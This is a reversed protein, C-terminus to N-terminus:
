KANQAKEKQYTALTANIEASGNNHKAAIEQWKIAEDLDGMVYYVRALTDLTAADKNGNLESARTAAKLALQMDTESGKGTRATNWAIQNLLQANEWASEIVAGRVESAQEVRGARELITMRYLATNTSKGAAEEMQDLVTLAGDYDKKQMSANLRSMWQKMVEQQKMEAVAADRNWTGAVIKALPEDIRAPHGIWEVIGDRGVVFACPIGNQGAARMYNTNTWDGSDLALRYKIVENWTGGTPANKSLFGNVTAEDERTVGIFAVKDKYKTQLESIHPMGVRCPGCWTAWFEVVHVKDRLPATVPDGKIWKAVKLGPSPDGIGLKQAEVSQGLGFSGLLVAIGILLRM